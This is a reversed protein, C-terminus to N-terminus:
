PEEVLNEIDKEEPAAIGADDVCLIMLMDKGHFLCKNFPCERFGIKLLAKTLHQCWNKPAFKSGHLSKNLRLCGNAGYKNSFGRPTTMCVPEKLPAQPFANAWDVSEAVWGLQM